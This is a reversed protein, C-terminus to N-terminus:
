GRFLCRRLEWSPSMALLDLVTRGVLSKTIVFPPVKVENLFETIYVCVVIGEDEEFELVADLTVVHCYPDPSLKSILPLLLPLPLLKSSSTEPSKSVCETTVLVAEEEGILAETLLLVKGDCVENLVFPAVIVGEETCNIEVVPTVIILLEPLPSISVVVKGDREVERTKVVGVSGGRMDVVALESEIEEEEEELPRSEM